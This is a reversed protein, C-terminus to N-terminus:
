HTPADHEPRENRVMRTCGAATYSFASLGSETGTTTPTPDVHM